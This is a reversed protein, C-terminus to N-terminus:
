RPTPRHREVLSEMQALAPRLLRHPRTQPLEHLLADHPEAPLGQPRHSGRLARWRPKRFQPQRDADPPTGGLLVRGVCDPRVLPRRMGARFGFDRAKGQGHQRIRCPHRRSAPRWPRRPHAEAYLRLDPRRQVLDGRSRRHCSPPNAPRPAGRSRHDPDHRSYEPLRTPTPGGALPERGGGPGTM